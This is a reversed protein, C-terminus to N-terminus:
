KIRRIIGREVLKEIASKVLVESFGTETAYGASDFAGGRRRLANWVLSELPGNPIFKENVIAYSGNIKDKIIAKKGKQLGMMKYVVDTKYQFVAFVAIAVIALAAILIYASFCIPGLCVMGTRLGASWPCSYMDGRCNPPEPETYVVKYDRMKGAPDYTFKSLGLYAVAWAYYNGGKYGVVIGCPIGQSRSMERFLLAKEISDLGLGSKKVADNLNVNLTALTSESTPTSAISDLVQKFADLADTGTATKDLSPKISSSAGAGEIKFLPESDTNLLYQKSYSPSYPDGELLTENNVYGSAYKISIDKKEGAALQLNWSLVQALSDKLNIEKPQDFTPRVRDFTAVVGDAREKALPPSFWLYSSSPNRKYPAFIYYPGGNTPNISVEVTLAKEGNNDLHIVQSVYSDTAEIDVSAFVDGGFNEPYSLGYSSVEEGARFPTEKPTSAKITVGKSKVIPFMPVSLTGGIDMLNQRSNLKVTLSPSSLVATGDETKVVMSMASCLAVILLLSFLRKM